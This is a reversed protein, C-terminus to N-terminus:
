PTTDPHPPDNSDSPPPAYPESSDLSLMNVADQSLYSQEYDNDPLDDSTAQYEAQLSSGLEEYFDYFPVDFDELSNSKDSKPM